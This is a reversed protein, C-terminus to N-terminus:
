DRDVEEEQLGHRELKCRECWDAFGHLLREM